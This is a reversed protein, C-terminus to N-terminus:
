LIVQYPNPVRLRTARVVSRQPLCLGPLSVQFSPDPDYSPAILSAVILQPRDRMFWGMNHVSFNPSDLLFLRKTVHKEARIPALGNERRIRDPREEHM